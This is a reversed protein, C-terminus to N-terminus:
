LKTRTQHESEFGLNSNGKMHDSLDGRANSERKRRMRRAVVNMMTFAVINAVCSGTILYMQFSLIM